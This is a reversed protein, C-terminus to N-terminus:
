PPKPRERRQPFFRHFFGFEILEGLVIQIDARAIDARPAPCRVEESSVLDSVDSGFHLPGSSPKFM